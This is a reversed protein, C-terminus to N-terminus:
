NRRREKLDGVLRRLDKELGPDIDPKVYEAM